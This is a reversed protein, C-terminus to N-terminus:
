QAEMQAKVFERLEASKTIGFKKCALKLAQNQRLWDCPYTSNNIENLMREAVEEPTRVRMLMYGPKALQKTYEEKLEELTFNYSM